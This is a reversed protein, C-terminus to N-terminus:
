RIRSLMSRSNAYHTFGDIAGCGLESGTNSGHRDAGHGTLTM